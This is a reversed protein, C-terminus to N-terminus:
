TIRFTYNGYMCTSHYHDYLFSLNNLFYSCKLKFYSEAIESYFPYELGTKNQDAHFLTDPFNFLNHNHTFGELYTETFCYNGRCLASM